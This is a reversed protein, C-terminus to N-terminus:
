YAKRSDAYVQTATAKKFRQTPMFLAIEWEPAEVKSIRGEVHKTLYHKFCPKFYKLKRVSQLLRYRARFRTNEDYREDSKALGDFLKARLVPPLYHMNLGYFGGPAKEVMIILPFTDYYPLTEKHKPDYFFMYMDGMRPRSVRQLASDRLLKQRNVQGINKLKNRFWKQSEDSRPQVGARFAQLQLKEFFSDAM